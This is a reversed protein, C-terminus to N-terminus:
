LGDKCKRCCSVFESYKDGGRPYRRDKHAITYIPWLWVGCFYCKRGFKEDLMARIRPRDKVPIERRETQPM